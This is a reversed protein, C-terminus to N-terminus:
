LSLQIQHTAFPFIFVTKIVEGNVQIPLTQKNLNKLALLLNPELDSDIDRKLVYRFAQVEYGEPAYEIFNTVFIIVTDRRFIRLRRAVDMGNYGAEEFDIDLLAIDYGSLLQDSILSADTFTHIRAKKGSKQLVSEVISRMTDIMGVDDDCILVNLMSIGGTNRRYEAENAIIM